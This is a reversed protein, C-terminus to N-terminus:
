NNVELLKEITGDENFRAVLLECTINQGLLTRNGTEILSRYILWQEEGSQIRYGVAQDRQQAELHEAVTLQRWTIRQKTARTRNFDFLIPVFLNSGEISDTIRLKRSDGELDLSIRGDHPTATWEPLGLPLLLVREKSGTLLIEYSEAVETPNSDPEFEPTCRISDALTLSSEYEIRGSQDGMVADAMWVFEEDHALLIHRQVTVDDELPLHLEIYDVDDDSVWCIQEWRGIPELLQGDRRVTVPWDGSFITDNELALECRVAQNDHLVLLRPDTKPWNTRLVATEAWESEYSAEPLELRDVARAVAPDQGPLGVAAIQRDEDDNTSCLATEFLDPCSRTYHFPSTPATEHGTEGGLDGTNGLNDRLMPSGDSRTTRIIARLMWEYQDQSKKNLLKKSLDNAMVLCRTWCAFLPRTLRHNRAHPVGQGDLLEEIGENLQKKAPTFLQKCQKVNPFIWALAIPLEAGLLQAAVPHEEPDLATTDHALQVLADLLADREDGLLEAYQEISLLHAWCLATIAAREFRDPDEDTSDTDDQDISENLGFATSVAAEAWVPLCEPGERDILWDVFTDLRGDEADLPVRDSILAWSLPHPRDSAVKRNKASKKSRVTKKGSKAPTDAGSILNYVLQDLTVTSKQASKSQQKKAM